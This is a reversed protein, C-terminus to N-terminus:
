LKTFTDVIFSSWEKDVVLQPRNLLYVSAQNALLALIEFDNASFV